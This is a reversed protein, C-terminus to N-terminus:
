GHMLFTLFKGLAEQVISELDEPTLSSPSKEESEEEVTHFVGDDEQKVCSTVSIRRETKSNSDSTSKTLNGEEANCTHGSNCSSHPLNQLGYSRRESKFCKNEESTLKFNKEHRKMENVGSKDECLQKDLKSDFPTSKWHAGRAQHLALIQKEMIVALRLVSFKLETDVLVAKAGVGGIRVGNQSQPLCVKALYHLALETKGAGEPGFIEM